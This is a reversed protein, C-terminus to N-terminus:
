NKVTGEERQKALQAEAAAVFAADRADIIEKEPAKEIASDDVPLLPAGGMKNNNLMIAIPSDRSKTVTDLAKRLASPNLADRGIRERTTKAEAILLGAPLDSVGNKKTRTMATRISSATRSFVSANDKAEQEEIAKM